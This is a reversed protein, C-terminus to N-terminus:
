LTIEGHQQEYQKVVQVMALALRKASEATMGLVVQQQVRILPGHQDTEQHSVCAALQFEGPQFTTQFANAYLVQLNPSATLAVRTQASGNERPSAADQGQTTQENEHTESMDGGNLPQTILPWIVHLPSPM